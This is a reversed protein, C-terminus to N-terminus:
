LRDYLAFYTLSLCIYIFAYHTIEFSPVSSGTQLVPISVCVYSHVQLRLLSPAPSSFQSLLM